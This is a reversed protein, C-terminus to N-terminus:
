GAMRLTSFAAYLLRYQVAGSTKVSEMLAASSVSWTIPGHGRWLESTEAVARTIANSQGSNLPKPFWGLTIHPRFPYTMEPFNGTEDVVAAIKEQLGELLATDGAVGAYITRKPLIDFSDVGGSPWLTFPPICGDTDNFMTDIDTALLTHLQHPTCTGLFRLTIHYGGEERRFHPLVEVPLAKAFDAAMLRLARSVRPPAPIAIFARHTKIPYPAKTETM